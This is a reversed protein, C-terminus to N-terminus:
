DTLPGHAHVARLQADLRKRWEKGRRYADQIAAELREPERARLVQILERAQALDKDRKTSYAPRRILLKNIAYRAPDPVTVRVGSGYLVIVEVPEEILYEMFPLPEAACQLASIEVPSKRGRTTLIEVEIQDSRFARPLRDNGKLVPRFSADARHLIKELPEESRVGAAALRAISFDADDTRAAGDSLHVGLLWAYQQYAHTDVLLLGRDFLGARSIAELLRGYVVPIGLGSARRLAQISKKTDKARAAARRYQEEKQTTKPDDARGLYISRRAEGEKVVAHLYAIGRSRRTVISAPPVDAALVRRTVDEHLSMLNQPIQRM